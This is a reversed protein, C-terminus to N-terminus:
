FLPAVSGKVFSLCPTGVLSACAFTFEEVNVCVDASPSIGTFPLCCIFKVYWPFVTVWVIITFSVIVFIATVEWGFLVIYLYPSSRSKVPATTSTVNALPAFVSM